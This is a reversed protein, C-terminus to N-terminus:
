QAMSIHPNPAPRSSIAYAGAGLLSQVLAAAALFVPYEWGGNAANFVWGNPAHVWAAGLLIPILALSVWRTYLGLILLVGGALEAAIVVYALSGPLGTSQFFQVTGPLTFVLVKLLAHAIFMIGLSVRLIFAGYPATQLNLM